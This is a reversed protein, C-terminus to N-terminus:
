GDWSGSGGMPMDGSGLMFGKDDGVVQLRLVGDRGVCSLGVVV